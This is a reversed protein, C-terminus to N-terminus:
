EFRRNRGASGTPPLRSLVEPEMYRVSAEEQVCTRLCMNKRRKM